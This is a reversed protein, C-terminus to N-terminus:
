CVSANLHVFCLYILFVHSDIKCCIHCCIVRGLLCIHQLYLVIVMTNNRVNHTVLFIACANQGPETRHERIRFKFNNSLVYAIHVSNTGIEMKSPQRWTNFFIFSNIIAAKFCCKGKKRKM